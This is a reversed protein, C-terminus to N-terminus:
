GRAGRKRDLHDAKGVKRENRIHQVQERRYRKKQKGRHPKQSTVPRAWHNRKAAGVKKVESRNRRAPGNKLKEEQGWRATARLIGRKHPARRGDVNANRIPSLGSLELSESDTEANKEEKATIGVRHETKKRVSQDKKKNKEEV